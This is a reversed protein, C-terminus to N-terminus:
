LGGDRTLDVGAARSLVVVEHGAAVAADVVYRGATGTGGAVAIRM